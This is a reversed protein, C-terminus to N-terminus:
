LLIIKYHELILFYTSLHFELNYIYIIQEIDTACVVAQQEKTVEVTNAYFGQFELFKYADCIFLSLKCLYDSLSTQM